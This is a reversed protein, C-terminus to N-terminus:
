FARKELISWDKIGCCPRRELSLIPRKEKMERSLSLLFTVGMLILAEWYSTYLKM